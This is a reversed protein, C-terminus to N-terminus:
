REAPQGIRAENKAAIIPFAPALDVEQKQCNKTDVGRKSSKGRLEIFLRPFYVSNDGECVLTSKETNQSM